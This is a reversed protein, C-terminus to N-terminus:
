TVTVGRGTRARIRGAPAPHSPSIAHAGVFKSIRCPSIRGPRRDAPAPGPPRALALGIMAM